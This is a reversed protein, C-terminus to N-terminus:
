KNLNFFIPKANWDDFKILIEDNEPVYFVYKGEATGGSYLEVYGFEDGGELTPYVKDQTVESGSSDVIVFDPTVYQAEDETEAENITYKVEIMAWEMGEPAEENFENAAMLYDYVEDGRVFNTLTISRNGEYKEDMSDNDHGFFEFNQSVKKDIPVPNSRSGEISETEQTSEDQVEEIEEDKDEITLGDEEACAGLLLSSAFLLTVIRKSMYLGGLVYFLWLNETFAMGAAGIFALVVGSILSPKWGYRDVVKPVILSVFGNVILTITSHLAFSGRLIGLDEAVPSYFVGITNNNIGAFASFMLSVVILVLWHKRTKHKVTM